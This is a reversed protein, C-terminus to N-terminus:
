EVEGRHAMREEAWAKQIPALYDSVLKDVLDFVSQACKAPDKFIESGTFRVTPVGSLLLERDRSRDRAAQEKTREHFDHGDCEIAVDQRWERLSINLGFDFRYRPEFYPWPRQTTLTLVAGTEDDNFVIGWEYAAGRRWTGAVLAWFLAREIPSECRGAHADYDVALNQIASARLQSVWESM